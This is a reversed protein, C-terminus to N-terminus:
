CNRCLINKIVKPSRVPRRTPTTWVLSEPLPSSLRKTKKNSGPRKQGETRPTPKPKELISPAIQPKPKQGKLIAIEDRLNQVTQELEALRDQQAYLIALLAQVSPTQQEPPIEPITPLPNAM